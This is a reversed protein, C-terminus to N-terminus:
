FIVDDTFPYRMLYDIAKIPDHDEFFIRYLMQTLPLQIKHKKSLHYVINLTRVGEVVENLKHVIEEQSQGEAWYMGYRFNRSKESTATAVLDGVGSLGFFAKRTTGFEEGFSIMEMLGRTILLSQLNKGLNLGELLGSGLAIINKFTGALEAGKLDNSGFCYFRKSKLVKTGLEVVEDYESAIVTAAPQHDLIERALNPGSIVGIRLVNTEERIVESMTKVDSMNIDDLNQPDMNGTDLGKTTHIIYHGAHVHPSLAKAMSRFSASPVAPFILNCSEAVVSLENVARINPALSVGQHKHHVNINEITSPNRSYVLVDVNEALLTAITTGFSGSGIVGVQKLM